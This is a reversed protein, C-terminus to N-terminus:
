APAEQGPAVRSADPTRLLDRAVYHEAVRSKVGKVCLYSRFLGFYLPQSELATLGNRAAERMLNRLSYGTDLVSSDGTLLRELRLHLTGPEELLLVGGAKLVRSIEALGARWGPCHHLVGCVFVADFECDPLDLATIDGVFVAAPTGRSKAIEVQEPVIDFATLKAPSFRDWILELTYGSGCGADLVSTDRLSTGHKRIFSEFLPFDWYRLLLERGRSNMLRMERKGIPPRPTQRNGDDQRDEMPSGM